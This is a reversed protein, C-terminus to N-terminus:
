CHCPCAAEQAFRQEGRYISQRLLDSTSTGAKTRWTDFLTM